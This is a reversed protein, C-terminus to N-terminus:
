WFYRLVLHLTDLHPNTRNYADSSKWKYLLISREATWTRYDLFLSFLYFLPLRGYQFFQTQYFSAAEGIGDSSGEQSNPSTPLAWSMSRAQPCELRSPYQLCAYDNGGVKAESCSAWSLCLPAFWSASLIILCPDPYSCSQPWHNSKSSGPFFRSLHSPTQTHEQTGKLKGKEPSGTM